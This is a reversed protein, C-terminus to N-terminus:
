WYFNGAHYDDCHKLEGVPEEPDYRGFPYLKEWKKRARMQLVFYVGAGILGLLIGFFVIIAVTDM